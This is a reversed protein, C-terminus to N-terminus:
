DVVPIGKKKLLDADGLSYRWVIDGRENTQVVWPRVLVLDGEKIWFDRKLRGPISCLREYGDACRVKFNSAGLAQSVRGVVENGQPLKLEHVVEENKKKAM